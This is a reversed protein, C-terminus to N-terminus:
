VARVAASTPTADIQLLTPRYICLKRRYGPDSAVPNAEMYLERLQAMASLERDIADWQDVGIANNNM